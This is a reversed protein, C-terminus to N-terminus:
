LYAFASVVLRLGGSSQTKTLLDSLDNRLNKCWSLSYVLNKGSILKKLLSDTGALVGELGGEMHQLPHPKLRGDDLLGQVIKFWGVAFDRMEPDDDREFPQGWGIPKGLVTPGLVWDPQV